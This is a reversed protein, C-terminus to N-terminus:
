VIEACDRQGDRLKPVSPWGLYQDKERCFSIRVFLNKGFAKGYYRLKDPDLLIGNTIIGLLPAHRGKFLEEFAEAYSEFKDSLLPEFDCGVQIHRLKGKKKLNRIIGSMVQHDFDTLKVSKSQPSSYCFTCRLNCSNTLDVMFTDITRFDIDNREIPYLLPKWLESAYVTNLPRVKLLCIDKVTQVIYEWNSTESQYPTDFM